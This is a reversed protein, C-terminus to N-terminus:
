DFPLPADGYALRHLELMENQAYAAIDPIPSFYRELFGTDARRRAIEAKATEADRRDVFGSISGDPTYTLPM